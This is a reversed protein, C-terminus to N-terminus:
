PKKAPSEDSGLGVEQLAYKLALEKVVAFALSGGHSLGKARIRGWVSESRVRDLFEHGDWSLEFPLVTIVRNDTKRKPEAHLLGAEYMLTLNYKITFDDYGEIPPVEVHGHDTKNEFFLLLKRILELDRKM